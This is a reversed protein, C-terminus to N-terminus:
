KEVAYIINDKRVNRHSTPTKRVIATIDFLSSVVRKKGDPGTTPTSSILAYILRGSTHPFEVVAEVATGSDLAQQSLADMNFGCHTGWLSLGTSGLFEDSRLGSITTMEQNVYEYQLNENNVMVGMIKCGELGGCPHQTSSTCISCRIGHNVKVSSMPFVRDCACLSSCTKVSCLYSGCVFCFSLEDAPTEVQCSYCAPM